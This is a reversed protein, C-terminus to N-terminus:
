KSKELTQKYKELPFKQLYLLTEKGTNFILDLISLGGIFGNKTFVQYYEPFLFQQSHINKPNLLYRLDTTGEDVTHPQVFDSSLTFEFQHRLMNSVCNLSALNFDILNQHNQEFLQTIEEIFYEFFPSSNYAAELATIHKKFPMDHHSVVIDKTKTHNGNPKTVPLVLQLKGNAGAITYRNRYTQKPYTEHQEVFCKGPMQMLFAMYQVPPFPCAPLLVSTSNM